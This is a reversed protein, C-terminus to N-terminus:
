AVVPKILIVNAERRRLAVSMDDVRVAIPDKGIFGEHLIEVEAGEVFGIELLRRELEADFVEDAQTDSRETRGVAVVIGKLGKHGSGLPIILPDKQADSM